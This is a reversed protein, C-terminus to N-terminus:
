VTNHIVFYPFALSVIFQVCCTRASSRRQCVARNTDTRRLPDTLEDRPCHQAPLSLVQYVSAHLCTMRVQKCHILAHWRSRLHV